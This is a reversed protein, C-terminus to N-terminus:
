RPRRRHQQERRKQEGRSPRPESKPQAATEDHPSAQEVILVSQLTASEGTEAPPASAGILLRRIEVGMVAAVAGILLGILIAAIADAVVSAMTHALGFGLAAIAGGVLAATTEILTTVLVPNAGTAPIADGADQVASPAAKAAVGALVAANLALALAIATYGTHPRLLIRPADALKGVGEYIAVGAGISFLILAAVFCWVYLDAHRAAPSPAGARHARYLGVLMLAQSGTAALFLLGLAVLTSAGTTAAAWFSAAASALSSALAALVIPRSVDTPVSM